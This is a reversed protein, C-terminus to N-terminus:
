LWSSHARQKRSAPRMENACRVWYVADDATAFSVEIVLPLPKHAVNFSLRAVQYTGDLEPEESTGSAISDVNMWSFRHLTRSRPSLLTDTSTYAVEIGGESVRVGEITVDKDVIAAGAIVVAICGVIVLIVLLIGQVVSPSRDWDAVRAQLLNNSAGCFLALALSALLQQIRNRRGRQLRQNVDGWVAGSADCRSAGRSDNIVLALQRSYSGQHMSRKEELLHQM